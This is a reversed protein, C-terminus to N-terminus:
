IKEYLSSLDIVAFVKEGNQCKFLINKFVKEFRLNTYVKMGKIYEVQNTLIQHNLSGGMLIFTDALAKPRKEFIVTDITEGKQYKNLVDKSTLGALDIFKTNLAGYAIMGIDGSLVYSGAFNKLVFGGIERRCAQTPKLKVM